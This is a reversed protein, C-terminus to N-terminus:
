FPDDADTEEPVPAPPTPVHPGSDIEHGFKKRYERRIFPETYQTRRAWIAGWEADLWTLTPDPDGPWKKVNGAADRTFYSRGDHWWSM